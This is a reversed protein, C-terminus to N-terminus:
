GYNVNNLLADYYLMNLIEWWGQKRLEKYFSEIFEEAAMDVLHDGGGGHVPFPSDTVRVQRIARNPGSRSVVPSYAEVMVGKGKKDDRMELAAVMNLANNVEAVVTDDDLTPPAHTCALFHRPLHRKNNSFFTYYNPTNSCSFEYERPTFFHLPTDLSSPAASSHHNHRHHHHILNAFAKGALKAPLKLMLNLHMFFKPKTFGKPHMFFLIRAISWVKKSIVPLNNEM